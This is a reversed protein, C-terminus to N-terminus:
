PCPNVSVKWCTLTLASLNSNTNCDNLDPIAQKYRSIEDEFESVRHGKARELLQIAYIYNSKRELITDGCMDATNAVCQAMIHLAKGKFEGEVNQASNYAEFLAGIQFYSYALQYTIANWEVDDTSVSLMEKYIPIREPHPLLEIYIFQIAKDDPDLNYITEILLNYENSNQCKKEKMLNIMHWLTNKKSPKDEPLSAIFEPIESTLDQCSSIVQALYENLSEIITSRFNAAKVLDKLEFYDNILRTKLKAKEIQNEEISWMTYTNFYYLIIFYADSLDKGRNKIGRSLYKDAKKYNPINALTEYYGRVIDDNENYIEKQDMTDYVRLLIQNYKEFTDSGREHASLVETLSGLFREYYEIGFTQCQAEAQLFYEVADAYSEERMAENAKYKLRQCARSEEPVQAFAITAVLVLFVIL